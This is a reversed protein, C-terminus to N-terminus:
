LARSISCPATSVVVVIVVVIFFDPSVHLTKQCTLNHLLFVSM